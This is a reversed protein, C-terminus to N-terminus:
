AGLVDRAYAEFSRAVLEALEALLGEDSATFALSTRGSVRKRLASSIDALLEPHDYLPKLYFSVQRPTVRVGAFYDHERVGPAKLTDIGYLVSPELGDRYPDLLARLRGAMAELEPM